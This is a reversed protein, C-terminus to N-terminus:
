QYTGSNCALPEELRTAIKFNLPALHLQVIDLAVKRLEPPLLDEMRREM